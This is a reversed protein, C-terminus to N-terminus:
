ASHDANESDAEAAASEGKTPAPEYPFLVWCLLGVIGGCLVGGVLGIAVKDQPSVDLLGPLMTHLNVFNLSSLSVVLGVLFGAGARLLFASMPRLKREPTPSTAPPPAAPEEPAAACKWCERFQDGHMEGCSPCTWM